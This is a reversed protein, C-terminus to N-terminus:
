PLRGRGTLQRATRRHPTVAPGAPDRLPSLPVVRVGTGVTSRPVAGRPSDAALPLPALIDM